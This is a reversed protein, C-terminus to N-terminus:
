SMLFDAVSRGRTGHVARDTMDRKSLEVVPSVARSEAGKGEKNLGSFEWKKSKGAFEDKKLEKVTGFSFKNARGAMEEKSDEKIGIGSSSGDPSSTSRNILSNQSSSTGNGGKVSGQFEWKRSASEMSDRRPENADTNRLASTQSNGTFGGGPDLEFRRARASMEDKTMEKIGVDAGLKKDSYDANQASRVSSLDGRYKDNNEAGFNYYRRKETLTKKSEEGSSVKHSITNNGAKAKENFEWKRAENEFDKQNKKNELPEAPYSSYLRKTNGKGGVEFKWEDSGVDVPNTICFMQNYGITITETLLGGREADLAGYEKSMVVAGTFAYYRAADLSISGGTNRGIFLMLPLALETGNSLPDNIETPIYREVQLTYPKSIPKRKIHVYDNMGGEQIYDYENERTFARVSKLPVDFAFDVRLLFRFNPIYIHQEGM